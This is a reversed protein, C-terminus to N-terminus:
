EGAGFRERMSSSQSAITIENKVSRVGKTQQTVEEAHHAAAVTPANGSLTVVGAVTDVHIDEDGVQKDEHLAIKVKATIKSDKLATKTGLYTQKAAQGVDSGAAEVSEGARHMSEAASPNETSPGTQAIAYPAVALSIAFLTGTALTKNLKM